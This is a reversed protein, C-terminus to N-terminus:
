RSYRGNKRRNSTGYNRKFWIKYEINRILRLVWGEKILEKRVLDSKFKDFDERSMFSPEM